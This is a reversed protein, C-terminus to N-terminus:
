DAADDIGEDKMVTARVAEIGLADEAIFTDALMEVATVLVVNDEAGAIDNAATLVVELLLSCSPLLRRM